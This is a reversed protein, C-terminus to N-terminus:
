PMIEIMKATRDVQMVVLPRRAWHGNDIILQGGAVQMGQGGALYRDIQTADGAQVAVRLAELVTCTADYAWLAMPQAEEGYRQQYDRAFRESEPIAALLVNPTTYFLRWDTQGGDGALLEKGVMEMSDGGIVPITCGKQRAERLFARAEKAYGPLYIVDPDTTMAQGIAWSFDQQGRKYPLLRIVKGGSSEYAARFAQALSQAYASKDEIVIVAKTGLKKLAFAAAGAGLQRDDYSGQFINSGLSPISPHTALSVVPLPLAAKALVEAKSPTVPGIVAVAAKKQVETVLGQLATVDSADGTFTQVPRGGIGGRDNCEDVALQVGKSAAQGWTGVAGSLEMAIGLYYPPGSPQQEMFGVLLQSSRVALAIMLILIVIIGVITRRSVYLM